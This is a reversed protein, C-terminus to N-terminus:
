EFIDNLQNIVHEGGSVVIITDGERFVSGGGPIETNAGHIICAILTGKKIRLQRLPVGCNLTTKDAVFELAEVQGDAITHVSVAAGTQNQMARVYHVMTNCCLEKPSIVSGLPLSNLISNNELHGIKTIVQPVGRNSGYISIIMNMEDIGALTVIADCQDIHESELLSESSADGHIVEVNPLLAALQVCREYDSEIIQLHIGSKQLQQALYYSIRGGGCVIVRSVKRTIIGLNKLLLALDDTSATVFVRDGEKLVFDGGPTIAKGDRLVTCVLVRCKFINNLESLTANKLKSSEDVKLEVIEVRGKAFPERKLFGPM